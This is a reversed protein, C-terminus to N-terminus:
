KDKGGYKQAKNEAQKIIKIATKATKDGKAALNALEGVTQDAYHKLQDVQSKGGGRLRVADRAITDKLELLNRLIKKAGASLNCM